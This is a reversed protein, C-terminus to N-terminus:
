ICSCITSIYRMALVTFQLSFCQNPHLIIWKTSKLGCCAIRPPRRWDLTAVQCGPRCGLIDYMSGILTCTHLGKRRTPCSRSRPITITATEQKHCPWCAKLTQSKSCIEILCKKKSPDFSKSGPLTHLNCSNKKEPRGNLDKFM